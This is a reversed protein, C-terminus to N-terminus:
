RPHRLNVLRAHLDGALKRFDFQNMMPFEQREQVARCTSRIAAQIGDSDSPEAIFAYDRLLDPLAGRLPSVVILPKNLYISEYTKYPICWEAGDTQYNLILLADVGALKALTEKHGLHSELFSWDLLDYKRLLTRFDPQDTFDGIFLLRLEAIKRRAVAVAALFSEIALGPYLRGAFGVTFGNRSCESAADFDEIDYGNTLVMFKWQELNPYREQLLSCMWHTNALVCDAAGVVSKEFQGQIWRKWAPEKFGAYGVWPDRLDVVWPVDSRLRLFRGVIHATYPFSSSLVADYSNVKMLKKAIRFAFPFWGIKNDPIALTGLMRRWMSRTDSFFTGSGVRAGFVQTEYVSVGEPICENKDILEYLSPAACVVDIQWGLRVLYKALRTVRFSGVNGAPAFAYSILLLRKLRDELDFGLVVQRMGDPLM